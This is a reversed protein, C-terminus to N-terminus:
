RLTETPFSVYLRVLYSLICNISRVSILYGFLPEQKYDLHFILFKCLFLPAFTPLKKFVVIVDEGILSGPAVLIGGM